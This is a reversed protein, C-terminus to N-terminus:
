LPVMDSEYVPIITQGSLRATGSMSQIFYDGQKGGSFIVYWSVGIRTCPKSRQM